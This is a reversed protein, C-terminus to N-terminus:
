YELYRLEITDVVIKHADPEEVPNSAAIAEIKFNFCNPKQKEKSEIEMDM